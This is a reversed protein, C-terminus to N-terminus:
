ETLCSSSHTLIRCVRGQEGNEAPRFPLCGIRRCHSQLHLGAGIDAPMKNQDYSLPSMAHPVPLPLLPKPSWWYKWSANVETGSLGEM